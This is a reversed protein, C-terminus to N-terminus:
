LAESIRSITCMMEDDCTYVIREIGVKILLKQCKECPKSMRVPHGKSAPGVRAIYATCESFFKGNHGKIAILNALASMEAHRSFVGRDEQNFVHANIGSVIIPDGRTKENVIICGHMSEMQSTKAVDIAAQIYRRHTERMFILTNPHEM